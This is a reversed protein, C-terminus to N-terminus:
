RKKDNNFLYASIGKWSTFHKIEPGITLDPTKTYLIKFVSKPFRKQILVFVLDDIFHTCGLRKIKEIKEELSNAFYVKTPGLGFEGFFGNAHLWRLSAERLNVRPGKAPYTTKHSVISVPISKTACERLFKKIGHTPKAELVYSGYVSGQLITWKDNGETLKHIAERIHHKKKKVIPSILNERLAYKHFIEDYNVITNDFDIGIHM